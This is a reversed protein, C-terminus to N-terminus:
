LRRVHGFGLDVTLSQGTISNNMASCLFFVAEAIDKPTALRNFGTATSISNMQEETLVSRTMPTDIVGPLVANILIQRDALDASAARVFGGVAAKSITYSMKQPRALNQWISSIVCLRAPSDIKEGDLLAALSEMVFGLNAYMLAEFATRDYADIRDNLNAGQAWVVASFKAAGMAQITAAVDDRIEVVTDASVRQTNSRVVATVSRGERRFTDVIESGLVGTAGFVLVASDNSNRKM